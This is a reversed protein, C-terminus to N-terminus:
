PVGISGRVRVPAPAAAYNWATLDEVRDSTNIAVRQRPLLRAASNLGCCWTAWALHEDAGTARAWALVAIEHESFDVDSKRLSAAIERLQAFPFESM